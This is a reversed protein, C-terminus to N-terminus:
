PKTGDAVIFIRSPFIVHCPVLVHGTLDGDLTAAPIHKGVKAEFMGLFFLELGLQHAGGTCIILSVSLRSIV